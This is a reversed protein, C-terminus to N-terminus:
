RPRPRFDFVQSARTVVPRGEHRPPEFRWQRVAAFARRAVEDDDAFDLSPLRVAGTADIYFTVKAQKGAHRSADDASYAPNVLHVPAPIRDLRELPLFGPKAQDFFGAMVHMSFSVGTFTVIRVGQSEFQFDFHLITITSVPRTGVMAPRYRWQQTAQLAATGFERHSCDILLCDTLDGRDDIEVGIDAWGARIGRDALDSPFGAPATQEIGISGAAARPQLPSPEGRFPVLALTLGLLQISAKM